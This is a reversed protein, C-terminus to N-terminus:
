CRSNAARWAASASPMQKWTPLWAIVGRCEGLRHRADALRDDLSRDRDVDDIDAAAEGRGIRAHLRRRDLGIERDDVLREFRQRDAIRGFQPALGAAREAGFIRAHEDADLLAAAVLEVDVVASIARQEVGRM